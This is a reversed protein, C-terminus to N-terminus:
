LSRATTEDIFLARRQRRYECCGFISQRSGVVRAHRRRRAVQAVTKREDLVLRVAGAKFEDTFQRRKGQRGPGSGRKTEMKSVTDAERFPDIDSAPDAVLNAQSGGLAVADVEPVQAFAAAVRRALEFAAEPSASGASM